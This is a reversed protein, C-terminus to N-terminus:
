IHASDIICSESFEMNKIEDFINKGKPSSYEQYRELIKLKLGYVFLFEIDFYHGTGIENLFNWQAQDILKQAQLLNDTKAAQHIVESLYPEAYRQGRVYNLPDKGAREARFWALENRFNRDFQIWAKVVENDTEIKDAYGSLVNYILAYDEDALLRQCDRLFEESILSIKREFGIVPLSAAFYYYSHGM